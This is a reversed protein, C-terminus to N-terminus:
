EPALPLVAKLVFRTYELRALAKYGGVVFLLVGGAIRSQTAAIDGSPLFCM